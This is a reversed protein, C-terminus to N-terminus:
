RLNRLTENVERVLADCHSSYRGCQTLPITHDLADEVSSDGVYGLLALARLATLAELARREVTDDIHSFVERSEHLLDFVHPLHDEEAVLGGVLMLVRRWELPSGGHVAQASTLRWVGRGRVLTVQVARHTRLAYRNRNGIGRVGQGHVYLLGYERTFLRFVHNAEGHPYAVLIFAHTTHLTHM